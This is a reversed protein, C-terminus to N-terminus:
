DEIENKLAYDSEPRFQVSILKNKYQYFRAYSYSVLLVTSIEHNILKTFMYIHKFNILLIQNENLVLKLIIM